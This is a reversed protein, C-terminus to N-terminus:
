VSRVLQFGIRYDGRGPSGDDRYATRCYRANDYWSGGRLVSIMQEKEGLKSVYDDILKKRRDGSSNEIENILEMIEKDLPFDDQRCSQHYDSITWEWVNGTLDSIGEPTDGARFIGVSSTKGIGSEKANCKNKDLENGYAYERKEFGAAAAEWENEDPLRYIKGDNRTITLWKAFAAAEYWSVGVVPANPCNLKRDHWYRPSKEGTHELWKLGEKTWYERKVYGGDRIFQAYWQNTVPYKAMEFPQIEFTGRSLEYIGGKVPIFEELDRPDGLWGLIEGADARAKPEVDTDFISLLRNKALQVVQPERTNQHIDLLSWCALRWRYFPMNDEQDLIERVIRNAWKRSEISLYGIYLEIMERYWEDDWYERIAAAYDTERDVLGIAAFFEQFTLHRFNYQGGEIKLLGSNPEISDFITELRNKYQPKTEHEEIPYVTELIRVADVRDIGRSRNTHMEIALAMLFYRVNEPDSFRRSLLNNVFKKYLEARQNPLEKGDHYLICIATLLLPNDILREIGQNSRIQGIMDEATKEGIKSDTDYVYRFWRRIFEEIQTMNLSLIKVHRDGFREVVAGSIGHPRGSLIIKCGLGGAGKGSLAPPTEESRGRQIKEGRRKPSPSPSPNRFDAFARVVKDRLEPAIEDLGDLLIIAKGANCFCKLIEFDCEPVSKLISEALAKGTPMKGFDADKVDKLFILVPLYGDLNKWNKENLTMYAFHKLLTTKGSGAEGEILLYDNEAMLNEIDIHQQEAHLFESMMDESDFNQQESYLIESDDKQKKRKWAPFDTYLPIFIEPLNVQIVRGKERLKDIDMYKCCDSIHRTYNESICLNEIPESKEEIGLTKMIKALGNEYSPFLDATHISQLKEDMPKCDDIRVPIVFIGDAPFEDRIDLALKMEKQVFGRTTLSKLSLLSIFFESTRIEYSIIAKRDQGPLLDKEESWPTLGATKLDDYLRLAIESDEKAHSIFIKM